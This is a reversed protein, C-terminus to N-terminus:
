AAAEEESMGQQLYHQFLDELDAAIEVLILSKTAKPLSLREGTHSLVRRFRSM